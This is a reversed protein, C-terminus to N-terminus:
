GVRDPSEPDEEVWGSGSFPRYEEVVSEKEIHIQEFLESDLEGLNEMKVQCIEHAAKTIRTGNKLSAISLTHATKVEELSGSRLVGCLQEVRAQEKRVLTAILEHRLKNTPVKKDLCAVIIVDIVLKNWDTITLISDAMTLYATTYHTVTTQSLQITSYDIIAFSLQLSSIYKTQPKSSDKFNYNLLSCDDSKM